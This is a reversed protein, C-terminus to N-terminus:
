GKSFATLQVDLEGALKSVMKDMESKVYADVLMKIQPDNAAAEAYRRPGYKESTGKGEHVFYGYEAGPPAYNLALVVKGESQEKLMRSVDNYGRVRNELNGTIYARKFFQGNVMYVGALDAYKFAIDKLEKTVLM